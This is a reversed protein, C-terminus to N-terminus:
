VALYMQGGVLHAIQENLSVSEVWRQISRQMPGVFSSVSGPM